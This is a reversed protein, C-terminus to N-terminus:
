KNVDQPIFICAAFAFKVTSAEVWSEMIGLSTQHDRFLDNTVIRIPCSRGNDKVYAIMFADDSCGAPTTVICDSGFQDRLDELQTACNGHLQPLFILVQHVRSKYYSAAAVLKQWHWGVEGLQNSHNLINQGDLVYTRQHAWSTSRAHPQSYPGWRIGPCSHLGAAGAPSFRAPVPQPRGQMPPPPPTPPPPPLPCQLFYVGPLTSSAMPPPRKPSSGPPAASGLANPWGVARAKPRLLNFAVSSMSTRSVPIPASATVPDDVIECASTQPVHAAQELLSAAEEAPSAHQDAEAQRDDPWARLDVFASGCGRTSNVITQRSCEERNSRDTVTEGDMHLTIEDSNDTNCTESIDQRLHQLKLRKHQRSLVYLRQLKRRPFKWMPMGVASSAHLDSPPM